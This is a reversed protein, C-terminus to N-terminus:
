QVVKVYLINESPYISLKLLGWHQSVTCASIENKKFSQNVGIQREAVCVGQVLNLLGNLFWVM